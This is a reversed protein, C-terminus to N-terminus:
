MAQAASADQATTTFGTPLGARASADLAAVAPRPLHIHGARELKALEARAKAYAAVREADNGSDKAVTLLKIVRHVSAREEPSLGALRIREAADHAARWAQWAREVAQTYAVAQREPPPRDEREGHLAQAEAFADVFRGTSPVTVDALAPLRLVALPDCEYQGYESRLADFRQRASRWEGRWDPPAQRAAPIRASGAAWGPGRRMARRRRRRRTGKVLRVLGALVALTGVLAAVTVFTIIVTGAVALVAMGGSLVIMSMVLVFLLVLPLPHRRGGYRPRFTHHSHM